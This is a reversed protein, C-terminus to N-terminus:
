GARGVKADCRGRGRTVVTWSSDIPTESGAWRSSERMADGTPQVSPFFVFCGEIFTCFMRTHDTLLPSFHSLDNISLSHLYAFTFIYVYIYIYVGILLIDRQRERFRMADVGDVPCM